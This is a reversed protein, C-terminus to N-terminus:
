GHHVSGVLVRTFEIRFHSPLATPRWRRTASWLELLRHVLLTLAVFLCPLDVSRAVRFAVEAICVVGFFADIRVIRKGRNAICESLFCTGKTELYTFEVWCHLNTHCLGQTVEVRQAKAGLAILLAEAPEASCLDFVSSHGHHTGRSGNNLVIHLERAKLLYRCAQACHIFSWSAITGDSQKENSTRQLQKDPCLTVVLLWAVKAVRRVETLNAIAVRQFHAITLQVIAACCHKCDHTDDDGLEVCALVGDLLEPELLREILQGAHMFQYLILCPIKRERRWPAKPPWSKSSENARSLAGETCGHSEDRRLWMFPLPKLLVLKAWNRSLGPLIILSPHPSRERPM